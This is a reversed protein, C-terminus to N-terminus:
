SVYRGDKVVWVPAMGLSGTKKMVAGFLRDRRLVLPLFIEVPTRFGRM